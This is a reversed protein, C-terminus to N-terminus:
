GLACAPIENLWSKNRIEVALKYGSPMKKLFAKLRSLFQVPNLGTNFYPFQLVMPGLKGELISMTQGFEEFEIDCDVLVKDHTITQPV